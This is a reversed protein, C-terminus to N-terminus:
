TSPSLLWCDLHTEEGLPFMKQISDLDFNAGTLRIFKNNTGLRVFKLWGLMKGVPREM